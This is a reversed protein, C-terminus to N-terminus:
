HDHRPCGAPTNRTSCHECIGFERFCEIFLAHCGEMEVNSVHDQVLMVAGIGAMDGGSCRSIDLHLPLSAREAADRAQRLIQWIGYGLEGQIQVSVRDPGVTFTASM